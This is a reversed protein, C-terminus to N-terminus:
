ACCYTLVRSRVATRSYEVVCLKSEDQARATKDRWAYVAAFAKLQGDWSSAGRPYAASRDRLPERIAQPPPSPHVVTRSRAELTTQTNPNMLTRTAHRRACGRTHTHTHTRTDAETHTRATRMVVLLCPPCLRAQAAWRRGISEPPVVPRHFPIPRAQTQEFIRNHKNYLQGGVYTM